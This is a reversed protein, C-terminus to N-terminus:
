FGFSYRADISPTGNVPIANISLNEAPSEPWLLGLLAGAATLAIGGLRLSKRDSFRERVVYSEPTFAGDYVVFGNADLIEIVSAQGDIWGQKHGSVQGEYYGDDYGDKYGFIFQEELQEDTLRCELAACSHRTGYDNGRRHTLHYSHGPYEGTGLYVTLDVRGPANGPVFHSPVYNPDAALALGIGTGVLAIVTTVKAASRGRRVTQEQTSESSAMRLASALIGEGADQAAAPRVGAFALASALVISLWVSRM